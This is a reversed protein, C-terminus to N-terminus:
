INSACEEGRIGTAPDRQSYADRRNCFVVNTAFSVTGKGFRMLDIARSVLDKAFPMLNIAFSMIGMAFPHCASAPFYLPLHAKLIRPHAPLNVGFRQANSYMQNLYVSSNDIARKTVNGRM